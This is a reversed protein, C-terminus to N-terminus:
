HRAADGIAEQHDKYHDRLRAVGQSTLERITGPRRGLARAAQEVSQDAYYRLVVAARQAATLLQLAEVLLLEDDVRQEGNEGAPVEQTRNWYRQRRRFSIALNPYERRCLSEFAGLKEQKGM